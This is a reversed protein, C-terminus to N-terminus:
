EYKEKRRVSIWHERQCRCGFILHRGVLITVPLLALRAAKALATVATIGAAVAAVAASDAAAVSVLCPRPLWELKAVPSSGSDVLISCHECDAASYSQDTQGSRIIPLPQHHNAYIIWIQLRVYDLISGNGM